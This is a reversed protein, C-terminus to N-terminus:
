ALKKHLLRSCYFREVSILKRPIFENASDLEIQLLRKARLVFYLEPHIWVLRSERLGHLSKVWSIMFKHIWVQGMEKKEDEDACETWEKQMFESM